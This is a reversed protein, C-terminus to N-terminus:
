SCRSPSMVCLCYYDDDGVLVGRGQSQQHRRLLQCPLHVLEQGLLHPLGSTAVHQLGCPPGQQGQLLQQPQHQRGEKLGGQLTVVIPGQM